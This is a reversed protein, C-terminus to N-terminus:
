GFPATEEEIEIKVTFCAAEDNRRVCRPSIERLFIEQLRSIERKARFLANQSNQSAGCFTAAPIPSTGRKEIDLRISVVDNQRVINKVRSGCRVGDYNKGMNEM